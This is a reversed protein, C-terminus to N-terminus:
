TNAIENENECTHMRELELELCRRDTTLQLSLETELHVRWACSWETLRMCVWGGASMYEEMTLKAIRLNSLFLKRRKRGGSIHFGVRYHHRAAFPFANHGAMVM